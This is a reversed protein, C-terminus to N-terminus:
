PQAEEAATSKSAKVVAAPQWNGTQALLGAGVDLGVIEERLAAARPHDLSSIADHLELHAAAVRAAPPRGAVADSVDVVQGSTVQGVGEVDVADFPGIYKVQM